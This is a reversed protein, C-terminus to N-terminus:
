RGTIVSAVQGRTAAAVSATVAVTHTRDDAATGMVWNAAATATATAM